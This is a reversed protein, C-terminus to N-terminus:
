GSRSETPTNKVRRTSWVRNAWFLRTRSFCWTKTNVNFRYVTCTKISLSWASFHPTSTLLACACLHLRPHPSFSCRTFACQEM